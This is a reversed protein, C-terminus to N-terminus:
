IRRKAFTWASEIALASKCEIEEEAGITAHKKDELYDITQDLIFFKFFFHYIHDLGNKERTYAYLGSVVYLIDWFVLM